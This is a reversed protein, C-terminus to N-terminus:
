RGAARAANRLFEEADPDRGVAPLPRVVPGLVCLIWRRVGGPTPRTWAALLAAACIGLLALPFEYVSRFVRPAILGAFIGGLAGGLSIMLYFRTLDSAAPRRAALEGHCFLCTVLVGVCYLPVALSVDLVGNSASLGLAMLMAGALAAPIGWGPSYWGRGGRGEFALVFSLLYLILPALWLFPVSAVNQSIHATAGLLIM